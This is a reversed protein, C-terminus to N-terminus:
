LSSSFCVVSPWLLGAATVFPWISPANQEPYRALLREEAQAELVAKKAAKIKLLREITEHLCRM